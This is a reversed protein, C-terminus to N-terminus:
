RCLCWQSNFAQWRGNAVQFRVPQKGMAVGRCITCYKRANQSLYTKGPRKRSNADSRVLIADEGMIMKAYAHSNAESGHHPATFLQVNSPVPQNFSLDSDALFLVGSFDDSAPSQFVLSERNATTLALYRLASGLYKRSRFIEESNVPELIGSVGGKATLNNFEFWRIPINRCSAARAIARIRGAARIAEDFLMQNKVHTLKQSYPLYLELNVGDATARLRQIPRGLEIGEPGKDSSEASQEAEKSFDDGLNSLPSFGKIKHTNTITECDYYLEGIFDRIADDGLEGIRNAWSGPLWVEDCRLGSQLFGLIGNAHDSDNHTCVLYNVHRKDVAKIFKQEILNTSQGGDVLISVDNRNLYFADGRGVDIATFISLPSLNIM